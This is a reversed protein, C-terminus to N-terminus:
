IALCYERFNLTMRSLMYMVMEHKIFASPKFLFAVSHCTDISISRHKLIQIKNAFVLYWTLIILLKQLKYKLIKYM